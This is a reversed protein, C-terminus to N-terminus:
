ADKDYNSSIKHGFKGM